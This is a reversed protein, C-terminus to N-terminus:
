VEVRGVSRMISWGILVMAGAGALMLRGIPNTFLPDVFSRDMVFLFTLLGFPLLTLVLSSMRQQATLANVQRRLEFRERLTDGVSDLIQALNGGVEYQVRVIIAVLEYDTNATRTALRRLADALQVGVSIEQGALGFESATPEPSHRAVLAIAQPVSYGARLGSALLQMADLAQAEIRRLRRERAGLAYACLAILAALTILVPSVTALGILAGICAVALAPGRLTSYRSELQAMIQRLELRWDVPVPVASSGQGVRGPLPTDALVAAVRRSTATRRRLRYVGSSLLM